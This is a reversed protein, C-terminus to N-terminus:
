RRVRRTPLATPEARLSPTLHDRARDLDGLRIQLRAVSLTLDASTWGDPDRGFDSAVRRFVIRADPSDDRLGIPGHGERSATASRSTSAGLERSRATQCRRLSEDTAASRSCQDQSAYLLQGTRPTIASLPGPFRRVKCALGRCEELAHGKMSRSRNSGSLEASRLVSTHDVNWRRRRRLSRPSGHLDGSEGDNLVMLEGLLRTHPDPRHARLTQAARFWEEAADRRDDRPARRSGCRALRAVESRRVRFTDRSREGFTMARRM